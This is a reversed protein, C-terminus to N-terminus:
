AVSNPKRQSAYCKGYKYVDLYAWLAITYAMLPYLLQTNDFPRQMLGAFIIIAAYLYRRNFKLGLRILLFLPLWAVLQGIIGDEALFVFASAGMFETKGSLVTFNTAGVGLIPAQLFVNWCRENMGERSNGAITGTSSDYEFRGFIADNLAPDIYSVISLLMLFVGGILLLKGKHQKYFLWFYIFVQIFYAISLTSILGVILLMEIKKNYLFLKNLILAFIGWNALAGPEDFFGANRCFQGYYTNTAFLGFFYGTRGDMEEFELIPQILNLFVLIMGITGLITQLTIWRTFLSIFYKDSKYMQLCLVFYVILLYVIRTIYSTDQHLLTYIGWLGIQIVFINKIKAPLINIKKSQVYIGLIILLLLYSIKPAPLWGILYFVCPWGAILVLFSLIMEKNLNEKLQKIIYM